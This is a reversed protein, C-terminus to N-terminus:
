YWRLSAILNLVDQTLRWGKGADQFTYKEITVGVIKDDSRRM